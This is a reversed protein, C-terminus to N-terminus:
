GLYDAQIGAAELLDIGETTRYTRGFYVRAVNANVIAAACRECPATTAYLIKNTLAGPAKLLANLEAHVCGCNGVEEHPCRNPMGAPSGNYGIGLIQWGAVDTVVCGVAARRCTSRRAVVAAIDMFMRERTPREGYTRKHLDELHAGVLSDGEGNLMAEAMPTLPLFTGIPPAGLVHLVKPAHCPREMLAQQNCVGPSVCRECLEVSV